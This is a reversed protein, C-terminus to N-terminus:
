PAREPLDAAPEPSGPAREVLGVVLPMREARIEVLVAVRLTEAPVEEHRQRGREPRGRGPPRELKGGGVRNAEEVVVPHEAEAAEAPPGDAAPRVRVDARDALAEARTQVEAEADARQPAVEAADLQRVVVAVRCRNSLTTTAVCASWASARSSSGLSSSRRTSPLTRSCSSRSRGACRRAGQRPGRARAGGPVVADAVVPPRRDGVVQVAQLREVVLGVVADREVLPDVVLVHDGSRRRGGARCADVRQAAWAPSRVSDPWRAYASRRRAGRCRSGRPRGRTPRRTGRSREPHLPSSRARCRSAPARRPARRRPVGEAVRDRVPEEVEVLERLELPPQREDRDVARVDDREAVGVVEVAVARQLLGRDVEGAVRRDLAHEDQGLEPHEAVDEVRDAEVPAVAAVSRERAHDGLQVVGEALPQGLQQVARRELVLVVLVQVDRREEPEVAGVLVGERSGPSSTKARMWAGRSRRGAASPPGARGASPASSRARDGAEQEAVRQHGDLHDASMWQCASRSQSFRTGNWRLGGNTGPLPSPAPM